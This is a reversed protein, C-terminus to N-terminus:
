RRTPWVTCRSTPTMTPRTTGETLTVTVDAGPRHSLKVTYIGSTDGEAVGVTAASLVIAAQATDDDTETATLNASVSDYGGGSAAHTITKPETVWTTTTRPRGCPSRRSPPTTTTTFTLSAPNFTIDEDGGTASLAVTVDADPAMNLKVGYTASGGEPVSLSMIDATNGANRFEVMKDNEDEVATLNASISDYGGDRGAHGITRTGVISDSDEAATLTVTQPTKWNSTNFSLSAPSVTISGDNNPATNSATIDVTTTNGSTPSLSLRVKYTATSGEPVLVSATDPDLVNGNADSFVIGKDNEVEVATIQATQGNFNADASTVTHNIIRSGDLYDADEVASVQVTQATNWNSTTFTLSQTAATIDTDGDGNRPHVTVDASPQNRLRVSYTATPGGEHVSLTPWDDNLALVALTKLATEAIVDTCAADQYATYRYITNPSLGSLDVTTRDPGRLLHRPTRYRSQLAVAPGPQRGDSWGVDPELRFTGPDVRHCDAPGSPMLRTEKVYLTFPRNRPAPGHQRALQHGGRHLRRPGALAPHPRQHPLHLRLSRRPRRRLREGGPLRRTKANAGSRLFLYANAEGSKLTITYLGRRAVNFTYWRANSRNTKQYWKTWISDCSGDWSGGMTANLLPPPEWFNGTPVSITNVNCEPEPTTDNNLGTVTMKFWGPLHESGTWNQNWGPTTAEIVYTGPQLNSRIWAVRKGNTVNLNADRAVIFGTKTGNRLLLAPDQHNTEM